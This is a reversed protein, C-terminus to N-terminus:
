EREEEIVEIETNLFTISNEFKDKIHIWYSNSNELKEVSQIVGSYKRNNKLIIYVRKGEYNKWVDMM